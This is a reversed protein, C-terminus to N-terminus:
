KGGRSSLALAKDLFRRTTENAETEAIVAELREIEAVLEQTVEIFTNHLSCLAKVAAEDLGDIAVHACDNEDDGYSVGRMEITNDFVEGVIEDAENFTPTYFPFWSDGEDSLAQWLEDMWGNAREAVKNTM